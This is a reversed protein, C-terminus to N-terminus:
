TTASPASAISFMVFTDLVLLAAITPLPLMVILLTSVSLLLLLATIWDSCARLMFLTPVSFLLM